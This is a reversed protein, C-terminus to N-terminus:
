TGHLSIKEWHIKEYKFLFRRNLPNQPMLKRYTYLKRMNLYSFRVKRMNLYITYSVLSMRWKYYLFSWKYYLFISVRSFLSRWMNLYSMRRFLYHLTKHCSNEIHTSHNKEYKFILIESKEYKFLYYLFSFEDKVQLLYHLTKHCSNEIHTSNHTSHDSTTYSFVRRLYYLFHYMMNLYITYSVLSM